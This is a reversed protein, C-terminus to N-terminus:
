RMGMATKVDLEDLLVTKYKEIVIKTNFTMPFFYNCYDQMFFRFEINM